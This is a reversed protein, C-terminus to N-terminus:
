IPFYITITEYPSISEYVCVWFNGEKIASKLVFKTSDKNRFLFETPKM